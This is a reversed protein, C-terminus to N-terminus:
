SHFLSLVTDRCVPPIAAPPSSGRSLSINTASRRVSAPDLLAEPSVRMYEGDAFYEFAAHIGIKMAEIQFHTWDASGPDMSRTDLHELVALAIQAALGQGNPPIEHLTVQGYEQSLPVVWEPEHQSLDQLVLAGGEADSQEVMARALSGEYFEFGESDAILALTNAMEPSRFVDGARPPHGEPLFHDRFSTSGHFRQAELSWAGATVPGVPFGQDAYHIAAEFLRSFPLKGYKSSLARWVSVAGPVTVSDWGSTPMADRGAFRTASWGIPSRGSGNIGILERGNWVIAFADSGIGNSCPEVVTLTIAAALAADIANGGDRM